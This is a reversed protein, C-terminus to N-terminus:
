VQPWWGYLVQNIIGVNTLVSEEIRAIHYSIVQPMKYLGHIM